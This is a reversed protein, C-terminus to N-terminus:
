QGEVVFNDDTIASLFTGAPVRTLRAACCMTPFASLLRWEGEFIGEAVHSSVKLLFFFVFMKEVKSCPLCFFLGLRLARALECLAWLCM